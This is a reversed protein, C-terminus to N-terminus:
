TLAEHLFGTASEQRNQLKPLADGSVAIRLAIDCPVFIPSNQM